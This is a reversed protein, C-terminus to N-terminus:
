HNTIAFGSYRLNSFLMEYSKPVSTSIIIRNPFYSQIQNLFQAYMGEETPPIEDVIINARGFDHGRIVDHNTGVVVQIGVNNSRPHYAPHFEKLIRCVNTLMAHTPVIFLSGNSRDWEEVRPRAEWLALLALYTTMGISRKKVMTIYPHKSVAENIARQEKNLSFSPEFLGPLKYYDNPIM